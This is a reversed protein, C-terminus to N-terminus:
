LEDHDIDVEEADDEKASEPEAVVNKAAEEETKKTEEDDFVKKAAQEKEKLDAFTKKGFERAEEVSDTVIISDFITGAKVQWLDFGVYSNVSHYIEADEVYEPNPIEPHVWPGKYEPNPIQKPKWEGKFEPNSVKPAEWEGDMEEDWDEPQVADTDVITAPIDDWGDPKKDEPDAITATDVWDDPKSASPDKITKPPLVDWAELISGTQKEEDDLLISFTQDPKIILTYQDSFLTFVDAGPAIHKKILHNKEKYNIIAHIKKDGGCIDPGFMISYPTDGNFTKPDLKPLLKIYGGGCFIFIVINQEFKATFQLVLDKEKNDFEEDLPASISYFHADQSTQLGLSEKADAFFKGASVKFEGYDSRSESQVWRAPITDGPVCHIVISCFRFSKSSFTEQFYVMASALPIATVTLALVNALHVM